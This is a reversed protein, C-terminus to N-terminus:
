YKISHLVTGNDYDVVKELKGYKDYHYLRGDYEGNNARGVLQREGSDYYTTFNGHHKNNKKVSREIVVGNENYLIQNGNSKFNILEVEVKLKGDTSYEFAKGTSNQTLSDFNVLVIKKLNGNDYFIKSTDCNKGYWYKKSSKLNGSEYYDEAVGHFEGEKIYISEKIKGNDYYFLGQGFQNGMDWYAISKVNGNRWYYESKGHKEGDKFNIKHEQSGGKVWYGKWLSQKLNNEVLGEEIVIEGKNTHYHKYYGNEYVRKYEKNNNKWVTKILSDTEKDFFKGVSSQLSDLIEIEGWRVGNDYFYYLTGKKYKFDSGKSIKQWYGSKGEEEYFVYESNRYKSNELNGKCSAFIFLFLIFHRIKM